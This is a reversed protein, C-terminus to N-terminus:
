DHPEFVRHPDKNIKMMTLMFIVILFLFDVRIFKRFLLKVTRPDQGAYLGYMPSAGWKQLLATYSLIQNLDTLKDIKEMESVSREAGLKEITVTDM